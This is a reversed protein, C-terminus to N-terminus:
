RTETISRFSQFLLYWGPLTHIRAALAIVSWSILDPYKFSIYMGAGLIIISIIGSYTGIRNNRTVLKENRVIIM